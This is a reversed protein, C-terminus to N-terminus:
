DRGPADGPTSAAPRMGDVLARVLGAAPGAMEPLTAARGEEIAQLVLENIAGVIGVALVPPLATGRHAADAGLVGEIFGALRLHVRRRAALGPPGLALIEIILTQLLVPNRALAEFYAQLAQEVQLHWDRAPDVRSRLVALAQDSAAEYLAILCDAKTPFHEYFTRKSVRAQAALDAITTAAYGKTGAAEAMAELLRRRHSSAPAPLPATAPPRM